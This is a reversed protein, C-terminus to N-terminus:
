VSDAANESSVGYLNDVYTAATIVGMATDYGMCLWTDARECVVQEAPVRGFAGATRSGTIGGVTRCTVTM